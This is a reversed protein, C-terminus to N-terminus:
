GAVRIPEDRTGEAFPAADPIEDPPMGSVAEVRGTMNFFSILMTAEYIGREDWGAERLADVDRDEIM